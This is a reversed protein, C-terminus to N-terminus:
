GLFMTGRSAKLVEAFKMLELKDLADDQDHHLLTYNPAFGRARDEDSPVIGKYSTEEHTSNRMRRVFEVDDLSLTRSRETDLSSRSRSRSPTVESREENREETVATVTYSTASNSSSLRCPSLTDFSYIGMMDESTTSPAPSRMFASSTITTLNRDSTTSSSSTPRDSSNNGKKGVVLKKLKRLFKRKTSTHSKTSPQTDCSFESCDAISAQSSSRCLESDIDTVVGKGGIGESNAYELILEKAREQSRPSMTKSLDRAVMKGPPPQYNRLEFRLCANVWRLYVLEEVDAFHDTQLRELENTLDSNQKRLQNNDERMAETEAPKELVYSALIQDTSKLKSALESNESHLRLNAEKLQVLEDELEKLRQLKEQIVADNNVAMREQDELYAVKKQLIYLQERSQESISRIKRKMLKIKERASELDATVRTYDAVQLELRRKDAQLSEIKLDLFRVEMNNIKLRNQLDMVVTEQERLGCYELLQIEHNREREHLFRVMNKLNLIEQETEDKDAAKKFEMSTEVDKRPSIGSNSYATLDFEKLVLENFEPLLVGEDGPHKSRPSLSVIYNDSTIKQHSAM